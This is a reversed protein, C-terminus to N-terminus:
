KAAPAATGAPSAPAGSKLEDDIRNFLDGKDNHELGSYQGGVAVTCSGPTPATLTIDLYRKGSWNNGTSVLGKMQADDMQAFNYHPPATARKVAPWVQSCPSQYTRLRPKAFAPTSCIALIPLCILALTKTRHM